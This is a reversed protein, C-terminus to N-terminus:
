SNRRECWARLQKLAEVMETDAKVRRELFDADHKMHLSLQNMLTKHEESSWGLLKWAIFAVMGLGGFNSALTWLETPM